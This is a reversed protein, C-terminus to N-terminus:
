GGSMPREFTGPIRHRYDRNFHHDWSTDYKLGDIQRSFFSPACRTTLKSFTKVLNIVFSLIKEKTELFQIGTRFMRSDDPLSYVINGKVEILEDGIGVVMLLIYESEIVKHTEILIGDQSINIAKGMGQTTENGCGDICVYSIFNSTNVRSHQRRDKIM